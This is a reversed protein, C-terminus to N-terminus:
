VDALGSAARDHARALLAPRAGREAVEGLPDVRLDHELARELREDFAAPEVGRARRALAHEGAELLREGPPLLLLGVLQEALARDEIQVAAGGADRPPLM